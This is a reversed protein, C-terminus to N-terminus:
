ATNSKGAREFVGFCTVLFDVRDDLVAALAESPANVIPEEHANFSTNVLVPIGTAKHFEDLIDFYLENDHRSIIQPRASGDVHVVAPIRDRWAPKVGCTITMFRCAYANVPGVEFVDAAANDMVVPAFPMFETRQLRNNLDININRDVPSALISRAGLARPGFEMRGNYIAGVESNALKAAAVAAPIGDIRTLETAASLTLELDSSYDRGWYVNDIRRRSSIWRDVGDRKLLFHLVNGVTLGEDGMGPFVFIEKVGTQEGLIRNLSVNAFVGGALALYDAGTRDLYHRVSQGVCEELLKQISAAVDAPEADHALEAIHARIEAFDTYDSRIVGEDDVRFRSKLADLLSPKGFAALGTLKGEHRNIRYGLAQTAYGYALGLSNIERPLLLWRDDGYFTTFDKGDFHRVSYHVNDGCGDATYLLANEWPTYFFASLAHSFHHNAFFVDVDPRLGLDALLRSKVVLSDAEM